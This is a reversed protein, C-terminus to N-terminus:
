ATIKKLFSADRLSWPLDRPQTHQLMMEFVPRQSSLCDPPGTQYPAWQARGISSSDDMLSCTVVWHRNAAEVYGETVGDTHVTGPLGTCNRCVRSAGRGRPPTHLQYWNGCSRQWHCPPRGPTASSPCAVDSSRREQVNQFCAVRGKSEILNGASFTACYRGLVM